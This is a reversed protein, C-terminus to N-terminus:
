CNCTILDCKENCSITYMNDSVLHVFIVLKFYYKVTM